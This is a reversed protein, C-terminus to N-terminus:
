TEVVLYGLCETISSLLGVSGGGTAGDDGSEPAAAVPLSPERSTSGGRDCQSEARALDFSWSRPRVSLLQSWFQSWRSSM